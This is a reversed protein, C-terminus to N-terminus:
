HFLKSVATLFLGGVAGAGACWGLLSAKAKELVSIRQNHSDLKLSTATVHTDYNQILIDMKGELRGVAQFLNQESDPM